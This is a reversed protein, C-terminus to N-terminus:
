NNQKRLKLIDDKKISLYFLGVLSLSWGLMQLGFSKLPKKDFIELLYSNIASYTLLSLTIYISFIVVLIINSAFKILFMILGASIILELILFLVRIFNGSFNTPKEYDQWLICESLFKIINM